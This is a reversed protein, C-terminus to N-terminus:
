PARCEMTRPQDLKQSIQNLLETNDGLSVAALALIAPVAFKAFTWVLIITNAGIIGITGKVPGELKLLMHIMRLLIHSDDPKSEALAQERGRPNGSDETPTEAGM